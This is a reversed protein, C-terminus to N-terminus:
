ELKQPVFYSLFTDEEKQQNAKLACRNLQNLNEIQSDSIVIGSTTGMLFIYYLPTNNNSRLNDEYAMYQNENM